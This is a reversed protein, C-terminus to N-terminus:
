IPTHCLLILSSELIKAQATPFISNGNVSIPHLLNKCLSWSNGTPCTPKLDRKSVCTSISTPMQYVLRFHLLPTWDLTSSDHGPPFFWLFPWLLGIQHTSPGLVLGKGEMANSMHIMLSLLTLITLNRVVKGILNQAFNASYSLNLAQINNWYLWYISVELTWKQCDEKLACMPLIVSQQM